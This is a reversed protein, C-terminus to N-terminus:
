RAGFAELMPVLKDQTEALEKEPQSDALIGCGAYIRVSKGDEAILGSRLGICWEGDGEANMWGVPGSYRSRDLQEYAKIYERAVSTPTGCVAASPHLAAALELSSAQSKAVGTVDSALHLVNPLQLVYPEEPINMGSCLPRLAATVSEVALRHEVLDKSSGELAQALKEELGPIRRITGALVRSTVLGEERRLLMEPSAGIFGAILFAWCSDYNQVLRALAWRPDIETGPLAHAELARALVVKSLEGNAIAAAAKAVEACWDKAALLEQFEELQPAMISDSDVPNPLQPDADIAGLWVRDDRKAIILKPVVLTAQGLTNNSDFLFSGFAVPQRAPTYKMGATQARWWQAAERIDKGVWRAAVGLGVIANGKRHWACSGPELYLLPNLDSPLDVTNLIEM